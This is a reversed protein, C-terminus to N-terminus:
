KPREKLGLIYDGEDLVAQKSAQFEKAGMESKKQSRARYVTVVCDSVTTVAFEDLVESFVALREAQDPTEATFIMRDHFGTTILLYKRLHEPSAFDYREPLNMWIEKIRAFYHGRSKDSHPKFEEAEIEYQQGVVFTEDARKRQNVIPQFAGDDTWICMLLPM